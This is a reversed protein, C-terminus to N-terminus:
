KGKAAMGDSVLDILLRIVPQYLTEGIEKKHLSLVLISRILAIIVGPDEKRILGLLQWKEILPLFDAHDNNLHSQIKEEPLKTILTDMINEQYLQKMLPYNEVIELSRLLMRKLYERPHNEFPILEDLLMTKLAAEESELIEFYLEEKSDFFNYFSGPSIGAARTLDAVSTKKLGYTGFLLKGNDLLSQKILIKEKENFGKPM